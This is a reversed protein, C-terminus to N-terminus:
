RQLSTFTVVLAPLRTLPNGFVPRELSARGM